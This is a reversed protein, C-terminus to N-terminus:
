TLGHSVLHSLTHSLSVLHSWTLGLSVLHAWTSGLSVLHSWTRLWLDPNKLDVWSNSLRGLLDSSLRM